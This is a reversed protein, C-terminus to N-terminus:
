HLLLLPSTSQSRDTRLQLYYVGDSLNDLELALENKGKSAQDFHWQKVQRGQPDILTLDLASSQALDFTLQVYDKSPNPYLKLELGYNSREELNTVSFNPLETQDSSCNSFSTSRFGGRGHTGAYVVPCELGQVPDTVGMPEVRVSLVPVANMPGSENSWNGDDPGEPIEYAWLGMETGALLTVQDDQTVTALDYVPMSPLDNQLSNLELDGYADDCYWVNANQEYNGASVFIQNPNNPNIAIGSIYRKTQILTTQINIWATNVDPMTGIINGDSDAEPIYDDLGDYRAITGGGNFEPNYPNTGVFLSKGDESACLTSVEQNAGPIRGLSYWHNHILDLPTTNIWVEGISTGTFYKARIIRQDAIVGTSPDARLYVTEGSEYTELNEDEILSQDETIIFKLDWYSFPYNPDNPDFVDGTQAQYLYYYLELDEWLTYPMVYQEADDFHGDIFCEPWQAPEMDVTCDLISIGLFEGYNSGRRIGGYPQAGFIINPKIHSIETKGGTSPLVQTAALYSNTPAYFNSLLNGHFETGQLVQGDMAAGIGYVQSTNLDKHRSQFTAYLEEANLSRHIGANSLIYMRGENAPDFVIEQKGQPLFHENFGGDQQNWSYQPSFSWLTSGGLYVKEKEFPSVALAASQNGVCYGEHHSMPAFFEGPYETLGIWSNGSDSTQYLGAFCGNLDLVLAYAYNEDAATTALRKRSHNLEAPFNETENSFDTGNESRWFEDGIFCYVTGNSAVKVDYAIMDSPIAKTYSSFGNSSYYLGTNTAAYVLNGQERAALSNISLWEEEQLISNPNNPKANTQQFSQGGDNSIYIGDGPYGLLGVGSYGQFGEGTGVYISGNHDQVLSSISLSGLDSNGPSESWSGGGTESIWIGGSVSGAILKDPQDKDIIMARTRGAFNNPGLEDWEMSTATKAHAAQRCQKRAEDVAGASILGTAPNAKRNRLWDTANEKVRRTSTDEETSQAHLALPQLSLLAYALLNISALAFAAALLKLDLKNMPVYKSLCAIM